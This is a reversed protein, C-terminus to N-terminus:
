GSEKFYRKAELLSKEFVWDTINTAESLSYVQQLQLLFNRYLEKLMMLAFM